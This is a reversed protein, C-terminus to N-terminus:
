ETKNASGEAAARCIEWFSGSELSAGGVLAGDVDPQAILVDTGRMADYLMKAMGLTQPHRERHKAVAENLSTVNQWLFCRPCFVVFGRKALKLGLQM